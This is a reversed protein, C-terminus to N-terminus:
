ALRALPGRGTTMAEQLREHASPSAGPSVVNGLPGHANLFRQIPLALFQHASAAAETENLIMSQGLADWFLIKGRSAGPFAVKYKLAPECSWYWLIDGAFLTASANHYFGFEYRVTKLHPFPQRLGRMPLVVLHPRLIPLPNHVDMIQYKLNPELKPIRGPPVYVTAAPFHANYQILYVHHWDGPAIVHKIAAKETLELNKLATLTSNCLNVGNILALSPGAGSTTAPIKIIVMRNEPPGADAEKADNHTPVTWINNDLAIVTDFQNETCAGVAECCCSTDYAVTGKNCTQPGICTKTEQGTAMSVLLFCLVPWLM